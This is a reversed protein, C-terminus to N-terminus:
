TEKIVNKVNVFAASMVIFFKNSTNVQKASLAFFITIKLNSSVLLIYSLVSIKGIEKRKKMTM